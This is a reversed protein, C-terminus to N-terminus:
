RNAETASSRVDEHLLTYVIGVLGHAAGLYAGHWQFHLPSRLASALSLSPSHMSAFSRGDALLDRVQWACVHM